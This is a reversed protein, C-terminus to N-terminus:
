KLGSKKLIAKLTGTPIDKGKHDAVIISDTKLPHKFKKHSGKQSVLVWGNKKLLKILETSSMAKFNFRHIPGFIDIFKLLPLMNAVM